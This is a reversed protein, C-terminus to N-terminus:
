LRITKISSLITSIGQTFLTAAFVWIFSKILFVGELGLPERSPEYIKWSAMIFAHSFYIISFIVPLLFIFTGVLDIIAKGKTSLKQYIIDVRVHENLQLTYGAVSMFIIIHLYRVLEQQWITNINLLYRLAVTAFMVIVMALVLWSLTKGMRLNISDLFNIMKELM